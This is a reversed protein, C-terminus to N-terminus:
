GDAHYLRYWGAPASCKVCRLFFSKEQPHWTLLWKLGGCKACKLDGSVADDNAM